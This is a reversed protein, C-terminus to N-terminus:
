CTNKPHFFFREKHATDKLSLPFFLDEVELSWILCREGREQEVSIFPGEEEMKGFLGGGLFFIKLPVLLLANWSAM